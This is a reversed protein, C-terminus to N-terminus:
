ASLESVPILPVGKGDACERAPVPEADIGLGLKKREGSEHPVGVDTGGRNIQRRGRLKEFLGAAAEPSKSRCREALILWSV